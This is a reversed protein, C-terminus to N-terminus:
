VPATELDIGPQKATRGVYDFAYKGTMRNPTCVYSKGGATKILVIDSMVVIEAKFKGWKAEIKERNREVYALTDTGEPGLQKVTM